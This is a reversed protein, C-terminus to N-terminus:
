TRRKRASALAAIATLGAIAVWELALRGFDLQVAIYQSRINGIKPPSPPSMIFDWGVSRSVRFTQTDVKAVWPPFLVALVLCCIGVAIWFKERARQVAIRVRFCQIRASSIGWSRAISQLIKGVGYLASANVLLQWVFYLHQLDDDSSPSIGREMGGLDFLHKAIGPVFRLTLAVTVVALFPLFLLHRKRARKHRKRPPRM